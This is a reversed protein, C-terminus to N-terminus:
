KRVERAIYEAFLKVIHIDTNEYIMRAGVADEIENFVAKGKHFIFDIGAYDMPLVNLIKKVMSIEYDKLTYPEAKGGLSYNSKFSEASTREMAQVIENGIVYVRVDRGLDSCCKQFIFDNGKMENIAENKQQFNEVMFVQTGGHGNCSKIIYPKGSSEAEEESMLPMFPVIGELYEYSKRKDNAIETVKGSNFVRINKGEFYKSIDANRSRNIVFDPNETEALKMRETIVLEVDINYENLTETIFKIFRQNKALDETNYIIYGKMAVGNILKRKFIILLKKQWM